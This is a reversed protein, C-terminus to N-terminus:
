ESASEKHIAELKSELCYIHELAEEVLLTWNDQEAGARECHQVHERLYWEIKDVVLSKGQEAM